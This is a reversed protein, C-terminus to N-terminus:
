EVEFKCEWCCFFLEILLRWLLVWRVYFMFFLRVIPLFDYFSNYSFVTSIPTSNMNNCWNEIFLREYTELTNFILTFLTESGKARDKEEGENNERENKACYFGLFEEQM